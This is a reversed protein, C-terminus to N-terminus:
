STFTTCTDSDVASNIQMKEYGIVLSFQFEDEQGYDFNLLLLAPYYILFLYSSLVFLLILRSSREKIPFMHLSRMLKMVIAMFVISVLLIYFSFAVRMHVSVQDNEDAGCLRM